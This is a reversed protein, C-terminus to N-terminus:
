LALPKSGQAAVWPSPILYGFRVGQAQFASVMCGEGKVREVTLTRVGQYTLSHQNRRRKYDDSVRMDYRYVDFDRTLCEDGDADPICLGPAVRVYRLAMTGNCVM